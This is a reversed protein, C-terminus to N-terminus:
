EACIRAVEEDSVDFIAFVNRVDNPDDLVEVFRLVASPAPSTWPRASGQATQSRAAWAHRCHDEHDGGDQGQGGSCRLGGERAPPDVRTSARAHRVRRGTDGRPITASPSCGARFHCRRGTVRLRDSAEVSAVRQPKACRTRPERGAGRRRHPRVARRPSSRRSVEPARDRPLRRENPVRPRTVPVEDIRPAEQARSASHQARRRNDRHRHGVGDCGGPGLSRRERRASVVETESGLREACVELRGPAGHALPHGAGNVFHPRAGCGSGTKLVRGPVGRAVVGLPDSGPEAVRLRSAVLAGAGARAATRRM